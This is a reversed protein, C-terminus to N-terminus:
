SHRGVTSVCEMKLDALNRHKSYPVEISSSPQTDEKALSWFGGQELYISDTSQDYDLNLFNLYNM